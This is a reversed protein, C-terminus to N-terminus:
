SRDKRHSWAWVLVGAEVALVAAASGTLLQMGRFGVVALGGAILAGRVLVTSIVPVIAEPQGRVLRLAADGSPLSAAGVTMTSIPAGALVRLGIDQRTRVISM